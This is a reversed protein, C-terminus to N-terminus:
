KVLYQCLNGIASYPEKVETDRQENRDPRSLVYVFDDYNLHFAYGIFEREFEQNTFTGWNRIMKFTVYDGLYTKRLQVFKPMERFNQRQVVM